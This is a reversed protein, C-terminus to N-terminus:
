CFLHTTCCACATYDIGKTTTHSTFKGAHVGGPEPLFDAVVTQLGNGAVSDYRQGNAVITM